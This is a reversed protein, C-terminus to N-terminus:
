KVMLDIHQNETIVAAQQGHHKENYKQKWKIITSSHIKHTGAKSCIIRQFFYYGTLSDKLAAIAAKLQEPAADIESGKLEIFYADKGDDNVLLFDCKKGDQATLINGDVKYRRCKLGNPNEGIHKRGNEESVFRSQRGAEVPKFDELKRQTM